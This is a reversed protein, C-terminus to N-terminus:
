PCIGKRIKAHAFIAQQTDCRYNQWAATRYANFDATFTPKAGDLPQVNQSYETISGDILLPLSKDISPVMTLVPPTEVPSASLSSPFARRLGRKECIFACGRQPHAKIQSTSFRRPLTNAWMHKSLNALIDHYVTAKQL